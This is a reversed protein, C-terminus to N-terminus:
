VSIDLLAFKSLFSKYLLKICQTILGNLSDTLDIERHLSNYIVEVPFEIPGAAPYNQICFVKTM